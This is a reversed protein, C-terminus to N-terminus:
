EEERKCYLTNTTKKDLKESSQWSEAEPVLRVKEQHSRQRGVEKERFYESDNKSIKVDRIINVDQSGRM